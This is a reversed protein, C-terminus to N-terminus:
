ENDIPNYMKIKLWSFDKLNRTVIELGYVKATTAIIADPLKIKRNQKTEVTKQVIEENIPIRNFQELLFAVLKKDEENAFPFGLTEMYTIDSIYLTDKENAFSEIALTKQSLHIVINSDILLKRGSM